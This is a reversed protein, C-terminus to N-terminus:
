QLKSQRRDKLAKKKQLEDKYNDMEQKRQEEFKDLTIYTYNEPDILLVDKVMESSM